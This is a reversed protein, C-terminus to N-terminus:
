KETEVAIFIDLDRNTGIPCGPDFFGEPYYEFDGTYTRKLDTTWIKGWADVLSKPYEGAARFVAYTVAPVVKAVMGEPINDLTKVPCGIICSYPLTFDKEYDCYLTIIDQSAKNPIKASINEQFFRGWLKPIDQPAKDPANSTRCEIGIVIMSPKKLITFDNM